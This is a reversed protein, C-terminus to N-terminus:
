TQSELWRVLERHRVADGYGNLENVFARASDMDGSSLVTGAVWELNQEGDLYAMVSRRTRKANAVAATTVHMTLLLGSDLRIEIGWNQHLPRCPVPFRRM